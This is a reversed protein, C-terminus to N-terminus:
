SRMIEGSASPARGESGFRLKSLPFLLSYLPLMSTLATPTSKRSAKCSKNLLALLDQNGGPPM